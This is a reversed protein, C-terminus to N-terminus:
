AIKAVAYPSNTPELPDTMLEEEKMPQSCRKPYICSSGLFLLKKVKHVYSQHIINNQVMLNQYIFDTPFTNNALIGGVKAAALFIYDPKNKEFYASVAQGGMLELESHSPIFL